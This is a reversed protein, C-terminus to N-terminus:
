HAEAEDELQIFDSHFWLGDILKKQGYSFDPRTTSFDASYARVGYHSMGGWLEIIVVDDKVRVYTPRLSRIIRPIKRAEPHRGPWHMVYQGRYGEDILTRCAELLAQHDTRYLLRDLRWRVKIANFFGFAYLLVFLFVLVIITSVIIQGKRM